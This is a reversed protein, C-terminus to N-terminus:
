SQFEVSNGILRSISKLGDGMEFMTCRLRVAIAAAAPRRLMRSKWFLATVFERPSANFLLGTIPSVRPDGWTYM